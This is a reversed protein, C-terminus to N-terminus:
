KLKSNTRNEGISKVNQGKDATDKSCYDAWNQMLKKRKPVSTKRQYAAEAKDKLQHALCHEIVERPFATQEAAWDRFTSRFGHCTVVRGEAHKDIFGNGGAKLDNTHLTRIVKGLTADSLTGLRVGPFMVETGAVRPLGKLINLARDNLPIVHQKGAKMRSSPITWLKNKVDVEAWTAGRVEGSRAATLVLFELAKAATTNLQRVKSIFLGMGEYDLAPHHQVNKLKEPSPLITDLHGRYRAPNDGSRFGRTTAFALVREIRGRIRSATETKTSWIPDLVRVVHSSDIDSVYMSGIVPSAYTAITNQWQQRSKKNTWGAEASTIYLATVEDFTQMGAREKALSAKAKQKTAIPDEGRQISEHLSSAHERASKLSVSPYSGLGIDRVKGAIRKRFIWSRAGTPTVQLKLGTVGGVSYLGQSKLRRVALDALAKVVKPM